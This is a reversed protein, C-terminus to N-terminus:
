GMYNLIDIKNKQIFDKLAIGLAGRELENFEKKIFNTYKGKLLDNLNLIWGEISDKGESKDIIYRESWFILKFNSDVCIPGKFYDYKYKNELISKDRNSKVYGPFIISNIPINVLELTLDKNNKNSM